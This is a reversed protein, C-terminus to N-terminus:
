DAAAPMSIDKETARLTRFPELVGARLILQRGYAPSDIRQVAMGDVLVAPVKKREEETLVKGEGDPETLLLLNVRKAGLNTLEIGIKGDARRKLYLSLPYNGVHLNELRVWEVGPPMHPQITVIDNKNDYKAGTIYYVIAEANVGSEWPRYVTPASGYNVWRDRSDYAEAFEGTRSLMRDMLGSYARDAQDLLGVAKLNYLMMGPALGTYLATKISSKVTGEKTLLKKATNVANLRANPDEPTAYGSWIPNLNIDAFPSGVPALTDKRRGSLYIGQAADWYYEETAARAAAAKAAFMEADAKEGIAAAMESAARAAEAYLFGAEASYYEKLPRTESMLFYVQYTEDGNFPLRFAEHKQGTMNRRIFGYHSRIFESDGSAKYYFYYQLVLLSPDDGNQPFMSDWDVNEPAKSLDIDIEYRNGFGRIRTALDYFRLIRKVEDFKGSALLLRVPGFSDRCWSGSYKGMPSVAGNDSTTQTRIVTLISELIGELKPDSSTSTIANKMWASGETYTAELMSKMDVKSPDPPLFAASKPQIDIFIVFSKEEKPRLTGIPTDLRGSSAKVGNDLIGVVMRKEGVMQGLMNKEFPQAVDKGEGSHVVFVLGDITRDSENKVSINRFVTNTKLPALSVSLMSVIDNKEVNVVIPTNRVRYMRTRILSVETSRGNASDSQELTSWVPYFQESESKEYTPGVINTMKNQPIQLGILAFVNGNGIGFAGLSTIGPKGKSLELEQVFPVNDNLWPCVEFLSPQRGSLTKSESATVIIPFVLSMLLASSVFLRGACVATSKLINFFLRDITLIDIMTAENRIYKRITRQREANKRRKEM